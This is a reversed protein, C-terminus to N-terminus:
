AETIQVSTKSETFYICNVITPDFSLPWRNLAASANAGAGVRDREVARNFDFILLQKPTAVQKSAHAFLDFYHQAMLAACRVAVSSSAHRYTAVRIPGLFTDLFVDDVDGDGILSISGDQAKILSKIRSAARNRTTRISFLQTLSEARSGLHDAYVKRAESPIERWLNKTPPRPESTTSPYGCYSPGCFDNVLGTILCTAGLATLQSHLLLSDNLHRFRDAQEANRLEFYGGDIVVLCDQKSKFKSEYVSRAHCVINEIGM